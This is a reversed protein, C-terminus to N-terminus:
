MYLPPFGDLNHLEDILNEIDAIYVLPGVNSGIYISRLLRLMHGVLKITARFHLMVANRAREGDRDYAIHAIRTRDALTQLM